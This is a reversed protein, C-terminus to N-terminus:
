KLMNLSNNTKAFGDFISEAQIQLSDGTSELTALEPENFTVTSFKAASLIGHAYHNTILPGSTRSDTDLLCISLWECAMIKRFGSLVTNLMRNRDHAQLITQVLQGMEKVTCFQHQLQTSMDNFTTALDAFEDNNPLRLRTHFDGQSIKQAMERLLALPVLSRRIQISSALIIVALTLGLILAFPKAFAQVALTAESEPQIALVIWPEMQYLTELYADWHNALYSNGGRQWELHGGNTATRNTVIKDLSTTTDRRSSYLQFGTSDFVQIEVGGPQTYAILAQLYQLNIEGIVLRLSPTNHQVQKAMYLKKPGGDTPTFFLLAHNQALHERAVRPNVYSAWPAPASAAESVVALTNIPM